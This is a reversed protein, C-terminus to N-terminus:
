LRFISIGLMFVVESLLKIIVQYYSPFLELIIALLNSIVKLESLQISLKIIVMFSIILNNDGTYGSGM